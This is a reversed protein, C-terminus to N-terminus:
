PASPPRLGDRLSRLSASGSLVRRRLRFARFAPIAPIGFRGRERTGTKEANGAQDLGLLDESGPRVRSTIPRFGFTTFPTTLRRCRASYDTM